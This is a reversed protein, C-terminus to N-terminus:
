PNPTIPNIVILLDTFGKNEPIDGDRSSSEGVTVLSGDLLQVADNAIDIQSGGITQQWVVTDGDPNLILTWADNQGNNKTLDGNQSRSSGAILWADGEIIQISRGSDFSTGGFSTEKVLTGDAAIEFCWLDAGGKNVSVQQDDSRTDGVMLFSGNTTLAVAYATEIRSGGYSHEWELQGMANSKVVWCDYSGKSNSIDTDASDTGGVILYGGDSTLALGYPTDTQLGGFYNRWQLAGERDIKLVWYDGGAHKNTTNGLGGSRTVDLLGALLYGGDPTTILQTGFDSGSYGFAQEWLVEGMANVTVMWLNQTPFTSNPDDPPRRESFGFMAFGGQPTAVLDMGRDNGLGGYTRQWLLTGQADFRLLWFDFSDNTKNEVQGDRSQVYGLVAFGGDSTPIVAQASENLSGGFTKIIPSEWLDSRITTSPDKQCAVTCVFVVMLGLFLQKREVVAWYLRVSFGWRFTM